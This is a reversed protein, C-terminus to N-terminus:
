ALSRLKNPLMKLSFFLNRFHNSLRKESRIKKAEERRIKKKYFHCMINNEYYVFRHLLSQFQKDM